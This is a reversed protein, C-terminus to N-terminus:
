SATAQTERGPDLAEMVMRVAEPVAAAISPTLEQTFELSQATEVAVVMIEDPLEEGAIRGARLAAHLSVDHSSATHGCGPDPLADLPFRRVTGYAVRGSTMADVLVAHQYGILHEMLGLGGISLFEVDVPPGTAAHQLEKQVCEVVSWGVGDDGLVPNGLGIVITTAPTPGSSDSQRAGM